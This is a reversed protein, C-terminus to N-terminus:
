ACCFAVIEHLPPDYGDETRVSLLPIGLPLPDGFGADIQGELEDIAVDDVHVPHRDDREFRSRYREVIREREITCHIQRARSREVLPAFDQRALHPRFNSEVVVDVRAEILTTAVDFLMAIAQGGLQGSQTRDFRDPDVDGTDFLLEKFRDKAFLPWGLEVAIRAALTSKGSAPLGCVIVLGPSDHSREPAAPYQEDRAM